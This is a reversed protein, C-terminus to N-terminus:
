YPRKPAALFVPCRGYKDKEPYPCEDSLDCSYSMIKYDPGVHGLLPIEAYKLEIAHPAGVYPCEACFEIYITRQM